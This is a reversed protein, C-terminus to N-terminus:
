SQPIQQLDPKVFRRRAQSSFLVETSYHTLMIRPDLLEPNRELFESASACRPSQRMFHKVAMIWALTITEHYKAQGVGLHALFRVLSRKMSEHADDVSRGCLYTYALRVHARHDFDSAKVRLAEFAQCFALDEPAPRPERAPNRPARPTSDPNNM